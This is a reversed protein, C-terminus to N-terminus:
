SHNETKFSMKSGFSTMELQFPCTTNKKHSTGEFLVDPM